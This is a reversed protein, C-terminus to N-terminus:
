SEKFQSKWLEIKKCPIQINNFIKDGAIWKKIRDFENRKVVPLFIDKAMETARNDVALILANKKFQLANIGAHLRTGIYDVDESSLCKEFESISQNLITIKRQNRKFFPLSALYKVDGLGQPFFFIKNSYQESLVSLFINDNELDKMYDTLTFLCNDVMGIRNVDLGNLNWTTPCSTNIVNEIEINKLMKQTYGDRLSHIVKRSLTKKYFKKTSYKPTSQYQWWGVGFLVIDTIPVSMLWNFKRKNIKWQNYSNIDSSLINTGGVFVYKCEKLSNLNKSSPFEHSSVKIIDDGPFIEVLYKDVYKSIILDGLNSSIGGNNDGLAPDFVGIKLM